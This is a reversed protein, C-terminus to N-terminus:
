FDHEKGSLIFCRILADYFLCLHDYDGWDMDTDQAAIFEMDLLLESDNVYESDGLSQYYVFLIQDQMESVIM